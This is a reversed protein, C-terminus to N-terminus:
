GRTRFKMKGLRQETMDGYPASGRKVTEELERSGGFGMRNREQSKRQMIRYM